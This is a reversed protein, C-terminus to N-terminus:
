RPQPTGVPRLVSRVVGLYEAAVSHWTRRNFEDFLPWEITLLEDRHTLGWKIQRAMAEVDHPDFLIRARMSPPVHELTVPIASMVVPTGHAMSESFPFPFGGEFLSPVVTLRALRLCASHIATPLAPVSVVDQELGLRVLHERLLAGDIWADLSGTMVLKLGRSRWDTLRAFAKFLNVLNKHARTMTTVFLYPADHFRRTAVAGRAADCADLFRAIAGAAQAATTKAADQVSLLPAHPVVHVRRPDKGAHQSVHRTAVHTSYTIVADAAEVLRRAARDAEAAWAPSFYAPIESYMLDPVISVIPARLRTANVATPHTVLWADVDLQNARRALAGYQHAFLYRRVTARVRMRWELPEREARQPTSPARFRRRATRLGVWASPAVTVLRLRAAPIGWDELLTHFPRESWPALAVTLVIDDRAALARLLVASVRGVGESRYEEAFGMEWWVGLALTERVGTV